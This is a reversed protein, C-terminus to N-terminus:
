RTVEAGCNPCFRADTIDCCHGCRSCVFDYHEGVTGEMGGFDRCEPRDILDALVDMLPSRGFEYPAYHLRGDVAPALTEALRLVSEVNQDCWETYTEAPADAVHCERLRAAVERRQEDTIATM